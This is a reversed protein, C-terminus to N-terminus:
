RLSTYAPVRDGCGHRCPSRWGEGLLTMGMPLPVVSSTVWETGGELSDSTALVAGKSLSAFEM